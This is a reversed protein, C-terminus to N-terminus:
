QVLAVVFVVVVCFMLVCGSCSFVGFWLLVLVLKLLVFVVVVVAEVCDDRWSWELLM